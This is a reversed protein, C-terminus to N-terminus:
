QLVADPISFSYFFQFLRSIKGDRVTLVHASASKGDEAARAGGSKYSGLSVIRDNQEKFETSSPIYQTGQKALPNLVYELIEQPGRGNVTFSWGKNYRETMSRTIFESLLKLEDDISNGWAEVTVWTADKSMLSVAKTADGGALAAYFTRATNAAETPNTM